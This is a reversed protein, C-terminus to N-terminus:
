VKKLYLDLFYWVYALYYESYTIPRMADMFLPYKGGNHELSAYYTYLMGEKKEYLKELAKRLSTLFDDYSYVRVPDLDCVWALCEIWRGFRYLDSFKNHLEPVHYGMVDDVLFANWECGQQEFSMMMYQEIMYMRPWDELVFTYIYGCYENLFKMTELFGLELSRMGQSQSFDLIHGLRLLPEITHVPVDTKVHKVFGIGHVDVVYLEEAGMKLVLSIPLNDEYGGDIFTDEGIQTMPFAPYCSASAM